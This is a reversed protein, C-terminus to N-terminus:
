LPVARAMWERIVRRLDDLRAVRSGLGRLLEEVGHEDRVIVVGRRLAM